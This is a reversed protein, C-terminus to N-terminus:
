NAYRSIWKEKREQKKEREIRKTLKAREKTATFGHADLYALQEYPTRKSQPVAGGEYRDYRSGIKNRLKSKTPRKPM